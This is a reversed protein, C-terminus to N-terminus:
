HTVGIKASAPEVPSTWMAWLADSLDATFAKSDFLKTLLVSKRLTARLNGLLDLDSAHAVARQVYDRPNEAIWDPLGACTLLAHGQRELFTQGTMTLTPVGMWLAECTTTGGPFPFTDLLFDVEEYAALYKLRAMPAVLDVRASDFGADILRSLLEQRQSATVTQKNQLRLRSAPIATMVERWVALVASNIKNLNQFNGLTVFGNVRAPLPSTPFIACQAPETFCLRTHPLRWVKETFNGLSDDPVSTPDALVYDISDLGTSAFYGLWSFQIPAPRWAFVGLRNHATHGSLDVLIHIGQKHIMQAATEDSLGVLTQWGTCNNRLRGTLEDEHYSTPFGVCDIGHAHLSLLVSEIFYGVPHMRMDGSVLGIKLRPPAPKGGPKEVRWNSFAKSRANLCQGFAKAAVLYQKPSSNYSLTFLQNSRAEVNEPDLEVATAFDPLAALPDGLEIALTAMHSYAIALEPELRRAKLYCEKAGMVRGIQQYAIGLNCLARGSGPRLTVVREFNQSASFYDGRLEHLIGLRTMLDTNDPEYQLALQHVLVCESLLGANQLAQALQLCAAANRPRSTVAERLRKRSDDLQGLAHLTVGLQTLVEAQKPLLRLAEEFQDVAQVHDSELVHLNGRLYHLDANDPWTSIASEIVEVARATQGLGILTLCLERSAPAFGPQIRLVQEFHIVATAHDAQMAAIQGLMFTADHDKPNAALALSLWPGAEDSRGLEMLVYGLNILAPSFKADVALAQRYCNEAKDLRGQDLLQNGQGLWAKADLPSLPDIPLKQDAVLPTDVRASRRKLLKFLKALM